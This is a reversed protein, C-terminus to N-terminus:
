VLKKVILRFLSKEIRPLKLILNLIYKIYNESKPILTLEKKTEM